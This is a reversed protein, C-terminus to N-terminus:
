KLSCTTHCWGTLTDLVNEIHDEQEVTLTSMHELSLMLAEIISEADTGNERLAKCHDFLEKQTFEKRLSDIVFPISIFKNQKHLRVIYDSTDLCRNLEDIDFVGETYFAQKIMDKAEEMQHEVNSLQKIYQSHLNLTSVAEGYKYIFGRDEGKEDVWYVYSIGIKAGIDYVSNDDRLLKYNKNEYQLQM